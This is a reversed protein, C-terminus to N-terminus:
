KIPLVTEELHSSYMVFHTCPGAILAPTEEGDEFVLTVDGIGGDMITNLVLAQHGISKM